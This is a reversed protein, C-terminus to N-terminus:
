SVPGGNAKGSRAPAAGFPEVVEARLAGLGGTPQHLTVVLRLVKELSGRPLGVGALAAVTEAADGWAGLLVLRRGERAGLMAEVPPLAGPRPLLVLVDPHLARAATVAEPFGGAFAQARVRLAPGVDFSPGEGCWVWQEARRGAGGRAERLLACATEPRLANLVLVGQGGALFAALRGLGEAGLARGGPREADYEITVCAADGSETPVVALSLHVDRGAVCAPLTGRHGGGGTGEGVLAKLRSTLARHLGADIRERDVLAGGRRSRVVGGAPGPALVLETVGEEVCSLLLAYLRIAGSAEFGGDAYAAAEGPGEEGLAERLCALIATSTAVAPRVRRNLAGAVLAVARSSMPDAFAVDVTDGETILPLARHARLLAAPVRRVLAPDIQDVGATVFPFGMEDSIARAIQEETVLGAAVLRDALWTSGGAEEAVRALDAARVLGKSVLVEELALNGIRTSM